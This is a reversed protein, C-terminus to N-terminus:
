RPAVYTLLDQKTITTSRVSPAEGVAAFTLFTTLPQRYLLRYTYQAAVAAIADNILLHQEGHAVLEACSLDEPPDPLTSDPELLDPFVLAANPLASLTNDRMTDLARLIEERDATTGVVVQGSDYHNGADIWLGRTEALARRAEHNDVAGCLLTGFGDTHRDPDFRENAWAIQLGLAYNFRRALLEAKHCGVDAETFMQRGVNGAEATDPDVFLVSPVHHGRRHMDFVMRAINRAWQSGTGGLGVLVIHRVAHNPEFRIM